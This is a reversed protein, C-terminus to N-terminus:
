KGGAQKKLEQWCKECACKPKFYKANHSRHLCPELRWEMVQRLTDRQAEQAIAQNIERDVDGDKAGKAKEGIFSCAINDTINQIAEDSLPKIM